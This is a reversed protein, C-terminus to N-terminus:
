YTTCQLGNFAHSCNTHSPPTYRANKQANRALYASQAAPQDFANALAGFAARSQQQDALRKGDQLRLCELFLGTGKAYGLAECRAADAKAERDAVSQCGCLAVAFIVLVFLRM